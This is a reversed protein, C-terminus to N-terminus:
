EATRRYFYWTRLGEGGDYSSQGVLEYLPFRQTLGNDLAVVYAVTGSRLLSDQQAQQEPLPMNTVCFYKCPPLVAAATYFGGDLSGYNM